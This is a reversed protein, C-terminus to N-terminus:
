ALQAPTGHSPNTFIAQEKYLPHIGSLHDHACSDVLGETAIVDDPTHLVTAPCPGCFFTGMEAATFPM